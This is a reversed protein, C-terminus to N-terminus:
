LHKVGRGRGWGRGRREGQAVACAREVHGCPRRVPLQQLLRPGNVVLQKHGGAGRRAPAGPRRAPRRAPSRAPGRAGAQLAYLGSQRMERRGQRWRPALSCRKPGSWRQPATQRSEPWWLHPCRQGYRLQRGGATHPRLLAHTLPHRCGCADVSPTVAGAPLGAGMMWWAVVGQWGSAWRASSFGPITYQSISKPWSASRRALMGSRCWFRGSRYESSSRVRHARSTSCSHYCLVGRPPCLARGPRGIPHQQTISIKSAAARQTGCRVAGGCCAM